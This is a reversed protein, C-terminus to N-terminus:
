EAFSTANASASADVSVAAGRAKRGGARRRDRRTGNAATARRAIPRRSQSRGGLGVAPVYGRPVPMDAKRTWKAGVAATPDFQWLDPVGMGGGASSFGGVTYLKNNLVAGGGPLVTGGASGPWNDGTALTTITDTVPNYSFVRGNRNTGGAQSGGVCYILPTGGVTLLGCAMNNVEPDPLFAAKTVWTNTTPNYEYPNTADDGATDDSRGGVAYFKGNAPFYVGFSRVNTQPMLGGAAWAPTCQASVSVSFATMALMAMAAFMLVFISRMKTIGDHSLKHNLM